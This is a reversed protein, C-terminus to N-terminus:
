NKFMNTEVNNVDNQNGTQNINQKTVAVVESKKKSEEKRKEDIM